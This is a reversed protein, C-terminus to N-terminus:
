IDNKSDYTVKKKESFFQEMCLLVVGIFICSDAVNFAPWHFGMIHFDFFDAVAGYIIRDLANSLAGGAILGVVYAMFRNHERTFWHFLLTVIIIAVAILLFRTLDGSGAFIGFSVGTNWVMSLNFLYPIVEVQGGNGIIDLIYNKSLRDIAFVLLAIIAFFKYYTRHTQM